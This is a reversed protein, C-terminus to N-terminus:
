ETLADFVSPVHLTEGSIIWRAEGYAIAKQKCFICTDGDSEPGCEYRVRGAVIAISGCRCYIPQLWM